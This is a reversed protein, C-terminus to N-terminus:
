LPSATKRVIPIVIFFLILLAAATGCWVAIGRWTKASGKAAVIAAQATTAAEANTKAKQYYDNARVEAENLQSRLMDAEQDKVRAQEQAGVLSASLTGRIQREKELSTEAAALDISIQGVQADLKEIAAHQEDLEAETAAKALKLRAALDLAARAQEKATAAKANAARVQETTVAAQTDAEGAARRADEIRPVASAAPKPQVQRGPGAVPPVVQARPACSTSEAILIAIAALAIGKAIAALKAKM